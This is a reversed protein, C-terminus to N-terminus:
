LLHPDQGRLGIRMSKFSFRIIKLVKKQDINKIVRHLAAQMTSKDTIIEQELRAKILGFVGEVPSYM